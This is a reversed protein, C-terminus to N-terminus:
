FNYITEMVKGEDKVHGKLKFAAATVVPVLENPLATEDFLRELMQKLELPTEFHYKELYSGDAPVSYYSEEQWGSNLYDKKNNDSWKEASIKELLEKEKNTLFM